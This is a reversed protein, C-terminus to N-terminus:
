IDDSSSTCTHTFYQPRLRWELWNRPMRSLSSFLQQLFRAWQTCIWFLWLMLEHNQSIKGASLITLPLLVLPFVNFSALMCPSMPPILTSSSPTSGSLWTQSEHGWPRYGVLSRQGHSKGPLFVPTTTVKQALHIKGVWPSFRCTVQMEQM